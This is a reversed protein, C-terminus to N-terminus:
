SYSKKLIGRDSKKDLQYLLSADKVHVKGHVHLKVPRGPSTEELWAKFTFQDDNFQDSM